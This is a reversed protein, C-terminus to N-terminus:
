ARIGIGGARLAVHREIWRDQLDDRRGAGAVQYGDAGGKGNVTCYELGGYLVLDAVTGVRAIKPSLRYAGATDGERRASQAVAWCTTSSVEANGANSDTRHM